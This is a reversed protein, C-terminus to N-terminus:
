KENRWNKVLLVIWAICLAITAADLVLELILVAM